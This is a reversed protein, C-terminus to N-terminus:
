GWPLGLGWPLDTYPLRSFWRRGSCAGAIGTPLTHRYRWVAAGGCRPGENPFTSGILAAVGVIQVSGVIANAMGGGTEGVPLPLKTFFNWDLSRAGTLILMTLILALASVALLACASTLSLMVLNVMKRWQLGM